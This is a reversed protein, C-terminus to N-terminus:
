GAKSVRQQSTKRARDFADSSCRGNVRSKLVELEPFEKLTGKQVPAAAEDLTYAFFGGVVKQLLKLVEDGPVTGLLQGLPSTSNYKLGFGQALLPFDTFTGHQSDLVTVEVKTKRLRQWVAQWSDDTSLNKGEHSVLMFPCSLGQQLVSGFMTGDLNVGGTIRGDQLMAAAATAGGLSHGFVQVNELYESGAKDKFLHQRVQRHQLQDVVFSVDAERAKLDTLIQRDTSINFAPVVSGDPYEILPADYPHDITVVVYGESAVSAVIFNYILRSDGLGPSFLLIPYTRTDHRNSQCLSMEISGFAGTPIGFAAYMSDYLAATKNPM